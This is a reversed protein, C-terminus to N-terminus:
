IARLQAESLVEQGKYFYGPASPHAEWGAPPFAKAPVPPPPPPATFGQAPATFAPATIPKTRIVPVADLVADRGTPRWNHKSFDDGKKTKVAVVACEVLKGTLPQADSIAFAAVDETIEAAVRATDGPDIGNVASLFAKYNPFTMDTGWKVLWSATSGAPRSHDNSEHVRFEVILYDGNRGQYFQVKRVELLYEHGPNLYAGGSGTPQASNFGSFLKNNSM